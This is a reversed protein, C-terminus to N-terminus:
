DSGRQRFKVAADTETRGGSQQHTTTEKRGEAEAQNLGANIELGFSHHNSM